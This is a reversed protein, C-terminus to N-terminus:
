QRKSPQVGPGKGKSTPHQEEISNPKMPVPDDRPLLEPHDLLQTLRGVYDRGTGTLNIRNGERDRQDSGPACIVRLVDRNQQMLEHMVPLAALMEVTFCGPFMSRVMELLVPQGFTAM